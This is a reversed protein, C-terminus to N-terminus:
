CSAARTRAAAGLAQQVLNTGCLKDVIIRGRRKAEVDEDVIDYTIAMDSNVVDTSSARPAARRPWV